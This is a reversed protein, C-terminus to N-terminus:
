KKIVMNRLKDAALKGMDITLGLDILIRKLAKCEGDDDILKNIRTMLHLHIKNIIEQGRESNVDSILEDAKAKQAGLRDITIQSTPKDVEVKPMGTAPDVETGAMTM